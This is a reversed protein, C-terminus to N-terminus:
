RMISRVTESLFCRISIQMAASAPCVARPERDAHECHQGPPLAVAQGDHKEYGRPAHPIKRLPPSTQMLERERRLIRWINFTTPSASPSV